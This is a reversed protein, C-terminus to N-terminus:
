GQDGCRLLGSLDTTAWPHPLDSQPCLRHPIETGDLTVTFEGDNVLRYVRSSRTVYGRDHCIQSVRVSKGTTEVQEAKCRPGFAVGTFLIVTAASARQCPIDARVYYGRRLKAIDEADAAAAPLCAALTLATVAWCNGTKMTVGRGARAAM